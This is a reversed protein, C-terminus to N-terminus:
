WFKWHSSNTCLEFLGFFLTPLRAHSRVIGNSICSGNYENIFHFFLLLLVVGIIEMNFCFTALLAPFM